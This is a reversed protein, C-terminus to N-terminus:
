NTLKIVAKGNVPRSHEFPPPLPSVATSRQSPSHKSRSELSAKYSFTGGYAVVPGDIYTVYISFYCGM